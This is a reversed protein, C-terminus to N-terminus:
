NNIIYKNSWEKYEEDTMPITPKIYYSTVDIVRKVIELENKNM